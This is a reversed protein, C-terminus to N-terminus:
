SYCKTNWGATMKDKLKCIKSQSGGEEQILLEKIWGVARVGANTFLGVKTVM